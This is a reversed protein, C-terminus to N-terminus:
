KIQYKKILIGIFIEFLAETYALIKSSRSVYEKILYLRNRIKYYNMLPSHHGTSSSVNHYIYSSGAYILDIGSKQARWCFETDEYYLFYKEELLGIKRIINKSFLMCCGSVFTVKRTGNHKSFSYKKGIQEHRARGLQKSLKGGGYWIKNREKGYMIRPSVISYENAYEMITNLFNESVITDNNLLLLFDVGDKLAEKIALNNGGSFGLNEASVILRTQENGKIYRSIEFVSNNTSCNDVVYVIYNKYQIKNISSLCSVTDKYSNYNVLIIGVKDEVKKNYISKDYM